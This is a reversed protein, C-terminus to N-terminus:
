TLLLQTFLFYNPFFMKLFIITLWFWLDGSTCYLYIDEGSNFHKEYYLTDEQM